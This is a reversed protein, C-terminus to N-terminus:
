KKKRAESRAEWAKYDRESYYHHSWYRDSEADLLDSDEMMKEWQWENYVQQTIEGKELKAEMAERIAEQEKCYREVEENEREEREYEAKEEEWRWRDLIPCDDEKYESRYLWNVWYKEKLYKKFEYQNNFDERLTKAEAIDDKTGETFFYWFSGEPCIGNDAELGYQRVIRRKNREEWQRKREEWEQKKRAAEKRRDEAEKERQERHQQEIREREAESLSNVVLSSWTAKKPTELKGKPEKILVPWNEERKKQKEEQRKAWEEDRKKKLASKPCKKPTHGKEHCYGCEVNALVVCVEVTHDTWSKRNSRCFACGNIAQMKLLTIQYSSLAKYLYILGM